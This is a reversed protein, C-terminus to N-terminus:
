IAPMNYTANYLNVPIPAIDHSTTTTMQVRGCAMPWQRHHSFSHMPQHEIPMPSWM